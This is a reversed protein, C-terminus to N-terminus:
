RKEDLAHYFPCAEKRCSQGASCQRTKFILPHFEFEKWGHCKTCGLGKPCGGM